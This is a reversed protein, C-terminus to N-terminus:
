SRHSYFIFAQFRIHSLVDLAEKSFVLRPLENGKVIM